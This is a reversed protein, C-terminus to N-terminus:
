FKQPAWDLLHGCIAKEEQSPNPKLVLPSRLTRAGSTVECMLCENWMCEHIWTGEERKEWRDLVGFTTDGSVHKEADHGDQVDAM